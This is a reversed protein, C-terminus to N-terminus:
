QLCNWRSKIENFIQEPTANSLRPSSALEAELETIRSLLKIYKDEHMRIMRNDADDIEKSLEDLEAKAEKHNYQFALNKDIM